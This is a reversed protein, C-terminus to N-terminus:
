RRRTRNIDRNDRESEKGIREDKLTNLLAKRDMGPDIIISKGENQLFICTSNGEWGNKLLNAYGEVLVKLYPM